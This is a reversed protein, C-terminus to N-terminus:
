DRSDIEKLMQATIAAVQKSTMASFVGQWASSSTAYTRTGALERDPLVYYGAEADIYANGTMVGFGYRAGTSLYRYDNIDVVVLTGPREFAPPLTDLYTFERGAAAADAAMASRWEGRFAEWDESAAVEPAAKVHLYISSTASVPIGLPVDQGMPRKVSAACGALVICSLVVLMAVLKKM